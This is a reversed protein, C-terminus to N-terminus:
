PEDIGGPNWPNCKLIRKFGLWIGRWAGHKKIALVCYNSCSPYFRCYIGLLNLLPSLTKQYIKILGLFITKM